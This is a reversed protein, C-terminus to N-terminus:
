KSPKRKKDFKQWYSFVDEQVEYELDDLRARMRERADSVAKNYVCPAIEELFFSLLAGATVNGIPEEMNEAFYRQLSEVAQNHDEKTLEITM